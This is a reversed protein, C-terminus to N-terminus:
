LNYSKLRLEEQQKNKNATTALSSRLVPSSSSPPSPLTIDTLTTAPELQQREGTALAAPRRAQSDERAEIPSSLLLIM